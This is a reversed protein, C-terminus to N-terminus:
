TIRHRRASHSARSFPLYTGTSVFIIPHSLHVNVTAVARPAKVLIYMAILRALEISPAAIDGLGGM